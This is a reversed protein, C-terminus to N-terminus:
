RCRVGPRNRHLCGRISTEGYASVQTGETHSVILLRKTFLKDTTITLALAPSGTYSIGLIDMVAAPHGILQPDEDVSECLNFAYRIRHQSIEGMFSSLDRTFPIRISPVGLRGLSGEVAEVQDLIDRSAESYLGEPSVPENYVIAVPSNKL